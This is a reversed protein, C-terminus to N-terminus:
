PLQLKVLVRRSSLKSELSHQSFLQWHFDHQLRDGKQLFFFCTLTVTEEAIRM